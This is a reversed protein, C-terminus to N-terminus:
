RMQQELFRADGAANRLFNKVIVIVGFAANLNGMFEFEATSIFRVVDDDIANGDILPDGLANEIKRDFRLDTEWVELLKKRLNIGILFDSVFHLLVVGAAAGGLFGM